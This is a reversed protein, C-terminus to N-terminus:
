RRVLNQITIEAFVCELNVTAYANLDTREVFSLEDLIFLAVGGGKGNYM